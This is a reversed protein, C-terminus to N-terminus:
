FRTIMSESIKNKNSTKIEQNYNLRELSQRNKNQVDNEDQQYGFMALHPEYYINIGILYDDYQPHHRKNLAM